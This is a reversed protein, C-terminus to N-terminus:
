VIGTKELAIEFDDKTPNLDELITYRKRRIKKAYELAEIVQEKTLSLEKATTPSHIKELSRKILEWDGVGYAKEHFYEMIITGIAVQEGHLGEGYGLYDLAHSFKHEAGSVPRSSGVLSITVGSLILGKVLLELHSPTKLDLREAEVLLLNAPMLAMSAAVENYEEDKVDKGLKWDKVATVNSILDGYGARILRIPSNRIITIDALVAAPPDTSISIPKGGEKFSAIPSAIGDHSATSPMSIFPVNLETALVKGFDLVKGGGVGVISDVEEFGIEFEVDRVEEMRLSSVFITRTIVDELRKEVKNATTQYVNKGTVLVVSSCEMAELVNRIKKRANESVEVIRPFGVNKLHSVLKRM